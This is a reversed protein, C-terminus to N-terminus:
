DPAFPPFGEGGWCWRGGADMRTLTGGQQEAEMVEHQVEMVLAVLGAREVLVGGGDGLELFEPQEVRIGGDDGLEVVVESEHLEVGVVDHGLQEVVESQQQQQQEEPRNDCAGLPGVQDQQQQQPRPQQPQQQRQPQQQEGAGDSEKRVKVEEGIVEGGQVTVESIVEGDQVKSLTTVCSRTMEDDPCQGKSPAAASVNLAALGDAASRRLVEPRLAGKKACAASGRYAEAQLAVKEARQEQTPHVERKRQDITRQASSIQNDLENVLARERWFMARKGTRATWVAEYYSIYRVLAARETYLADLIEMLKLTKWRERELERLAIVEGVGDGDGGCGYMECSLGVRVPSVM